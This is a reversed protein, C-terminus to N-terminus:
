ATDGGSALLLIFRELAEIAVAVDELAVSEAPSHSVGGKCRVFFMAIETLTAMMVADHGAGSSLIAVTHGAAAVVDGQLM